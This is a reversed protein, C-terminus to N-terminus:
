QDQYIRVADIIDIASSRVFYFWQTHGRSNLDNDLFLFYEDGEKDYLV